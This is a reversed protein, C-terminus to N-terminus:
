NGLSLQDPPLQSFPKKSVNGYQLFDQGERLLVPTFSILFRVPLAVDMSSLELQERYEDINVPEQAVGTDM